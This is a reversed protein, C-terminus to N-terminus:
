SGLIIHVIMVIYVLMSHVSPTIIGTDHMNNALGAHQGTPHHYINIHWTINCTCISILAWQLDIHTKIYPFDIDSGWRVM